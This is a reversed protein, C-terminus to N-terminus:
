SRNLKERYHIIWNERRFNTKIHCSTCLTILNSLDSNVIDYDIHHANIRIENHCHVGCEQCTWNDRKYVLKRIEKWLPPYERGNMIVPKIKIGRNKRKYPKGNRAIQSQKRKENWPKCGNAISIRAITEKSHRRSKFAAYGKKFASRPVIGTKRGKNWATQLESKGKNWPNSNSPKGNVFPM